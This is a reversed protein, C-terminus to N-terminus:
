LALRLGKYYEKNTPNSYGRYAVRCAVAMGSWGGGRYVRYSGWSPGTPNTQAAASYDGFYDRCWECVNGSMDYLGLENPAKTAIPFTSTITVNVNYWGVESIRDSGAYTYGHSKNGGRAAFEWEAETPLRFAKGTMQNLKTIFTQCDDWSVKEVPYNLGYQFNSPNSGMVAVWLAQTVETEAISFSSLTVQHAPKERDFADPDDDSAGMMFTGGDVAVMKFTVGNVVFTEVVPETGPWEATLLYDILSTLDALNVTGDLNSDANIMSINSANGTLLYSIFSTVDVMNVSNDQNVDGRLNSSSALMPLAVM